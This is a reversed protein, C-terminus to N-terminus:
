RKSVATPMRRQLWSRWADPTRAALADHDAAAALVTERHLHGEPLSSVAAKGESRAPKLQGASLLRAAELQIAALLAEGKLPNGSRSSARQAFMKIARYSYYPLAFVGYLFVVTVSIAIFLNLSGLGEFIGTEAVLVFLVVAVLACLSRVLDRKSSKLEAGLYRECITLICRHCVPVDAVWVDAKQWASDASSNGAGPRCYESGCAVLYINEGPDAACGCCCGNM